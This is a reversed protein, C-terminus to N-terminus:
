GRTIARLLDQGHRTAFWAAHGLLFTEYALDANARSGTIGHFYALESLAFDVHVLPLLHRLAAEDVAAIQAYGGILACALDPCAIATEDPALALWAVANREIATALDFMASARNCLGFDLVASVGSRDWLLNSAHFDGHVWRPPLRSLHPLLARHWPVLVGAVDNQWSRGALADRLTADQAVWASLAGLLDPARTLGDAAVVRRTRRPLADYGAAALHLRALAQGAAQADATNRVPTWSPADRYRDDGAARAHVEYAGGATEVTTAATGTALVTPVSAGQARLHAMFSHEEALDASDRVRRDHRKVFVQTKECAILASAAFPRASHWIIARVEGLQPYARLVPALERVTLRPWDPALDRATV